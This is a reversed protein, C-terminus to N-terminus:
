IIINKSAQYVIMLPKIEQTFFLERCHAIARPKNIDYNRDNIKDLIENLEKLLRKILKYLCKKKKM